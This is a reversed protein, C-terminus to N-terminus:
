ANDLLEHKSHWWERFETCIGAENLRVYFIGDLMVKEQSEHRIFSVQWHAIGVEDSTALVAYNFQVDDQRPSVRHGYAIISEIGRLPEDFPSVQYTADTTFLREIGNQDKTEWTQKYKEMWGRFTETNM